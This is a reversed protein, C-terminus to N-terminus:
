AGENKVVVPIRVIDALPTRAWSKRNRISFGDGNRKDLDFQSRSVERVSRGGRFERRRNEIARQASPKIGPRKKRHTKIM